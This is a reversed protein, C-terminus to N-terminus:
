PATWSSDPDFRTIAAAATPTEDGLDKQRLAGDPGVMFTMVGSAGYEAPWALLGFGGRMTGDVVWSKEGGPASPGQATLIKFYYGYLPERRANEGGYGEASAKAALEGMPSLAQGEDVPWFLGNHKGPDSLLKQAYAGKAVGDHSEAAYEKQAEVFAAAVDMVALENRGVRRFRLEEKGAETDFRWKGGEDVLPIALPHDENGIVIERTTGEGELYWRERMAAVVVERERKAQVHDSQGLIERSNPGFLAILASTDNAAAAKYLAEAAADPTDFTSQSPESPAPREGQGTCGSAIVGLAVLTLLLVSSVRM